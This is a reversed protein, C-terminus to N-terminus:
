KQSLARQEPPPPPAQEQRLAECIQLVRLAQESISVRSRGLMDLLFKKQEALKDYTQELRPREASSDSLKRLQTEVRVLEFETVKLYDQLPNLQSSDRLEGALKMAAELVRAQRQNLDSAYKRLGNDRVALLIELETMRKSATNQQEHFKNELDNFDLNKQGFSEALATNDALAQCLEEEVTALRASLDKVEADKRVNTSLAQALKPEIQLIVNRALRLKAEADECEENKEALKAKLKQVELEASELSNRHHVVQNELQRHLLRLEANVRLAEQKDGNSLDLKRETGDILDANEKELREIRYRLDTVQDALFSKESGLQSCQANLSTVQADLLGREAESKQLQASLGDEVQKVLSQWQIRDVQWGKQLEECRREMRNRETEAIRLNKETEAIQERQNWPQAEFGIEAAAKSLQRSREGLLKSRSQAIQLELLERTLEKCSAPPLEVQARTEALEDEYLSASQGPKYFNESKM